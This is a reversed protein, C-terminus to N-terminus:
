FYLDPGYDVGPAALSVAASKNNRNSPLDYINNVGM